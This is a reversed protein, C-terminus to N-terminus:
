AQLLEARIAWGLPSWAAESVQYNLGGDDTLVDRTLIASPGRLKHALANSASIVVRWTSRSQTDGPEQGTPRGRDRNIQITCPVGTAVRARQTGNFEQVPQIGATTTLAERWIAIRRPYLFSM